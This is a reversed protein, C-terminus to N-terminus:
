FLFNTKRCTPIARFGLVLTSVTVSYTSSASMIRMMVTSGPKYLKQFFNIKYLIILSTYLGKDLAGDIKNLIM